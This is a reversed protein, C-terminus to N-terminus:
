NPISSQPVHLPICSIQMHGSLYLLEPRYLLSSVAYIKRVVITIHAPELRSLVTVHPYTKLKSISILQGKTFQLDHCKSNLPAFPPTIRKHQYYLLALPSPVEGPHLATFLDLEVLSPNRHACLRFAVIYATWWLALTKIRVSSFAVIYDTRRPGAIPSRPIRTLMIPVTLLVCVWETDASDGPYPKTPIQWGVMNKDGSVVHLLSSHRQLLQYTSNLYNQKM